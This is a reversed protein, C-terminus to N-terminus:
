WRAESHDLPFSLTGDRLTSVSATLIKAGLMYPRLRNTEYDFGALKRSAAARLFGEIREVDRDGGSGTVWEIGSEVDESTHVVPEPLGRDVAALAGRLDLYFRFEAESGYRERR